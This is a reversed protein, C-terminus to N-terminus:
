VLIAECDTLGGPVDAIPQKFADRSELKLGSKGEDAYTRVIEFGRCAAYQLRV